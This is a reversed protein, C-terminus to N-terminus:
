VCCAIYFAHPTTGLFVCLPLCSKRLLWDVVGRRRWHTWIPGPFDRGPQDAKNCIYHNLTFCTPKRLLKTISTFQWSIRHDDSVILKAVLRKFKSLALVPV